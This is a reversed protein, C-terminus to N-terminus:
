LAIFRVVQFRKRYRSTEGKRRMMRTSSLLVATLSRSLRSFWFSGRRSRLKFAPNRPVLEGRDSFSHRTLRKELRIFYNTGFRPLGMSTRSCNRFFQMRLGDVHYGRLWVLSEVALISFSSESSRSFRSGSGGILEHFSDLNRFVSM